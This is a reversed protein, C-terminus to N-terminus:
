ADASDQCLLATEDSSVAHALQGAQRQAPTTAPDDRYPPEDSADAPSGAGPRHAAHAPTGAPRDRPRGRDTVPDGPGRGAAPGASCGSCHPGNTDTDAADGPQPTVSGARAVTARGCPDRHGSAAPASGQQDAPVLELNGGPGPRGSAKVRRRPVPNVRDRHSRGGAPRATPAPTGAPGASRPGRTPPAAGRAADDGLPMGVHLTHRRIPRRRVRRHRCSSRGPVHGLGLSADGDGQSGGSVSESASVSPRSSPM